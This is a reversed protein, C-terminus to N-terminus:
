WSEGIMELSSSVYYKDMSEMIRLNKAMIRMGVDLGPSGNVLKQKTGSKLM